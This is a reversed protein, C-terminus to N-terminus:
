KYSNDAQEGQNKLLRDQQKDYTIQAEGLRSEAEKFWPM